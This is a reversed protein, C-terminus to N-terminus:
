KKAKRIEDLRKQLSDLQRGLAQINSEILKEEEVPEYPIPQSYPQPNYDAFRGYGRRYQRGYGFLCRNVPNAFGPRDYGSCYGAGRGTMPGMGNPGTRDGRPM